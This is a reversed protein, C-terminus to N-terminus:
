LPAVRVGPPNFSVSAFVVDNGEGEAETVLPRKDGIHYIDDGRGGTHQDADQRRRRAYRQWRWRVVRRGGGGTYSTM